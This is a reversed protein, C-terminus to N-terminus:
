VTELKAVRAELNANVDLVPDAAKPDTTATAADITLGLKALMGEFTNATGAAGCLSDEVYFVHTTISDVVQGVAALGGPVSHKVCYQFSYQNYKKGAVPAEDAYLPTYRLNPRSPLRLNEVIWKATGFEPVCHTITVGTKAVVAEVAENNFKVDEYNVEAFDLWTETATLTINNGAIAVTFYKNDENLALKIAAALDAASAAASEIVLPRGFEHWNSMGFEVFETGPTALFISLRQVDYGTTKATWPIVVASKTGAVAAAKYVTKGLINAKKYNGVRKIILEDNTNPIIVKALDNIITEKTYNFM